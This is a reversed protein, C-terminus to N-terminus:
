YFDVMQQLMALILGVHELSIVKSDIFITNQTLKLFQWETGTTVCGFITEMDHGEGQNFLRAGVMQAVCQGFGGALDNKKAEVLMLVPAQLAYIQEGQTIIFDCEGNLGQEKDVDLLEGSYIGIDHPNRQRLELLIPAVIFESRAKESSTTLALEQGMSLTQELWASCTVPQLKDFLVTRKESLQFQKKVSRLTFDSYAM